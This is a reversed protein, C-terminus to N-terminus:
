ALVWVSTCKALCRCRDTIQHIALPVQNLSFSGKIEGWRILCREWCFMLLRLQNVATKMQMKNKSGYTEKGREPSRHSSLFLPCKGVHEAPSLCERRFKYGALPFGVLSDTWQAPYLAVRSIPYLFLDQSFEQM